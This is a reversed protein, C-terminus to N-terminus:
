GGSGEVEPSLPLRFSFTSGRGVESELWVSGGLLEVYRRVISLGIGTGRQGSVVPGQYFREFVRAQQAVPIGVGEDQVAITAEGNEARATVRIASDEPSYKAANTLLNVLIRKFARDDAQLKLDDPVEVSIERAGIANQALDVCRLAVDQLSLAGVELRVEGAELRSYDLLQEIMGSMETANRSIRELLDAQDERDGLAFGGGLVETLACIVTLPTRLEHSVTSLFEDKLRDLERLRETAGRETALARQLKAEAGRRETADRIAASVITGSDTKLPSLSIEVPFETGDKRVAYLELDAGMPRVKPDAFYHERHAPHRNRFRGPVLVDVPQGLLEERPYGFLEETQRNVLAILGGSGVIVMADPASELLGRFKEEARKRDTVSRAITSVGVINGASDRIPHWIPRRIMEDASYAYPGEARLSSSELIGELTDGNVADTRDVAIQSRIMARLDMLDDKRVTHARLASAEREIEPNLYASCIIIPREFGSGRIRRTVEVGDIDPMRYDVVLVDFDGARGVRAVAEGGSAAEETDWGDLSLISQLALRVDDQDDVILVKAPGRSTRTSDV